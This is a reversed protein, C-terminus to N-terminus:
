FFSFSTMQYILISLCKFPLKQLRMYFILQFRLFVIFFICIIYNHVLSIIPLQASDHPRVFFNLFFSRYKSKFQFNIFSSTFYKNFRKFSHSLASSLLKLNALYLSLLLSYLLKIFLFFYCSFLFFSSM